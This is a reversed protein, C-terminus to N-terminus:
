PGGGARMTGYRLVREYTLDLERGHDGKIELDATFRIPPGEAHFETNDIKVGTVRCVLSLWGPWYILVPSPAPSDLAAVRYQLALVFRRAAQVVSKGAGPLDAAGPLDVTSRDDFGLTFGIQHNGTHVFELPRGSTNVTPVEAWTSKLAESLKQPNFQASITHGTALHVISLRKPM